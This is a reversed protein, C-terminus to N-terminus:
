KEGKLMLDNIEKKREELQREMIRIESAMASIEETIPYKDSRSIYVSCPCFDVTSVTYDVDSARDLKVSHKMEKGCKPCQM